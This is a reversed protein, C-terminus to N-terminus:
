QRQNCIRKTKEKISHEAEDDSLVLRKNDDLAEAMNVVVVIYKM